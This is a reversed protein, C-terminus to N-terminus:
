VDAIEIQLDRMSKITDVLLTREKAELGPLIHIRSLIDDYRAYETKGVKAPTGPSGKTRPSSPPDSSAPAEVQGSAKKEAFRMLMGLGLEFGSGARLGKWKLGLTGGDEPDLTVQLVRGDDNTIEPCERSVPKDLTTM